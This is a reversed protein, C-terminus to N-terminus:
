KLLSEIIPILKTHIDKKAVFANVRAEEAYRAINEDDASILIVPKSTKYIEKMYFALRDGRIDPMHIDACIIDPEFAALKKEFDAVNDALQIEYGGSKLLDDIITLFFKDDDIVLVKSM